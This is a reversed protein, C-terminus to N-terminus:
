YKISDVPLYLKKYATIKYGRACTMLKIPCVPRIVIRALFFQYHLANTNSGPPIRGAPM